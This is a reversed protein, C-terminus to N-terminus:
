NDSTSLRLQLSKAENQVVDLVSTRYAARRATEALTASPDFGQFLRNFAVSPKEIPPAPTSPGTWSINRGLIDPGDLSPFDKIGLELSPLRSVTGLSTPIGWPM